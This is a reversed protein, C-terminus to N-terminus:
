APNVDWGAQLLRFPLIRGTSDSGSSQDPSVPDRRTAYAPDDKRM